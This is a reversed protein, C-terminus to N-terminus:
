VVINQAKRARADRNELQIKAITFWPNIAAPSLLAMVTPGPNMQFHNLLLQFIPFINDFMVELRDM